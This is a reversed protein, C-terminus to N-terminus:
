FGEWETPFTAAEVDTILPLQGSIPDHDKNILAGMRAKSAYRSTWHMPVFVEGKRQAM